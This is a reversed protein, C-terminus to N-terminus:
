QPTKTTTAQDVDSEGSSTLSPEAESTTFLRHRNLAATGVEDSSNGSSMEDSASSSLGTSTEAGLDHFSDAISKARDAIIRTLMGVIHEHKEEMAITLANRHYTDTLYTNAGNNCLVRVIEANGQYCAFMLPTWRRTDASFIRKTVNNVAIWLPKTRGRRLTKPYRKAKNVDAGLECLTRVIDVNGSHVAYMLATMGYRDMHDLDISSEKLIPMADIFKKKVAWILANSGAKDTINVDAGLRCLAQVIALNGPVHSHKAITFMLPTIGNKDAHNIEVGARYLMEIRETRLLKCAQHILNQGEVDVTNIDVSHQSLISIINCYQSDTLYKSPEWSIVDIVDVDAGNKCLEEVISFDGKKCAYYLATKGKRDALNVDAKLECLARVVEIDSARVNHILATQGNSNTQNIDVGSTYLIKLIAIYDEDSIGDNDSGIYPAVINITSVDAGRECLMRVVEVSGLKCAYMLASMGNNDTLDLNPKYQLLEYVIAPHNKKAAIILPSRGKLNVKDMDAGLRCLSRVIYQDYVGGLYSAHMLPTFGAHDAINMDAGSDVLAEVMTQNGRFVAHMLATFGDDFIENINVEHRMLIRMTEIEGEAISEMLKILDLIEKESRPKPFKM